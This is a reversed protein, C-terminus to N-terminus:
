EYRGTYRGTSNPMALNMRDISLDIDNNQVPGSLTYGYRQMRDIYDPAGIMTVGSKLLGTQQLKLLAGEMLKPTAVFGAQVLMKRISRCSDLEHNWEGSELLDVIHQKLAAAEPGLCSQRQRENGDVYQAYCYQM